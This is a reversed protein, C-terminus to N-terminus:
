PVDTLEALAGPARGPEDRLVGIPGGIEWTALDLVTSPARTDLGGADIAWAISAALQHSLEAISTAAPEGHLNASTAALPPLDLAGEPVRVGIATPSAGCLWPMVRHANGVVLTWPGPLLLEVAARARPTLQPLAARLADVSAFLVATPQLVDRRKAGALKRCAVEDAALAAIGYVTDTPVVVLEGALLAERVPALDGAAPVVRM